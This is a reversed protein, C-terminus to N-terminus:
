RFAMGRQKRLFDALAWLLLPVVAAEAVAFAWWISWPGFLVNLVMGVPLLLAGSRLCAFLTGRAPRGVAPLQLTAIQAMGMLPLCFLATALAGAAQSPLAAVEAAPLFTRLCLTPATVAILLAVVGFGAATGLALRLIKRVRTRAGAAANAATLPHAAQAVGNFVATMTLLYNAVM